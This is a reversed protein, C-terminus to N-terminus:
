FWTVWHLLGIGIACVLPGFATTMFSWLSTRQLAGVLGYSIVIALPVTYWPGHIAGWILISAGGILLVIDIANLASQGLIGYNVFIAPRDLDTWEKTVTVGIVVLLAAIVTIVVPSPFM